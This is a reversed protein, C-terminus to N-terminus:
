GNGQELGHEAEKMARLAADRARPGSTSSSRHKVLALEADDLGSLFAVVPDAANKKITM